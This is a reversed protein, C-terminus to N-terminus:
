LMIDVWFFGNCKQVSSETSFGFFFCVAASRHGRIFNAMMKYQHEMIYCINGQNERVLV